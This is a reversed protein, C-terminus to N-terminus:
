VGPATEVRKTLPPASKAVCGDAIAKLRDLPLKFRKSVQEIFADKDFSQRPTDVKATVTFNKSECVLHQGVGKARMAADDPVAEDQAAAWAKKLKDEAWKKTEQALYIEALLPELNDGRKGSPLVQGLAQLRDILTEKVPGTM